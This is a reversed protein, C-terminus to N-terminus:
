TSVSNLYNILFYQRTSNTNRNKYTQVSFQLFTLKEQKTKTQKKTKTKTKKSKVGWNKSNALVKKELFTSKKYVNKDM